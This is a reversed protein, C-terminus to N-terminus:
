YNTFDPNQHFLSKTLQDNSMNIVQFMEKLCVSINDKPFKAQKGWFRIHQASPLQFYFLSLLQHSSSGSTFIPGVHGMKWEPRCVCGGACVPAEPQSLRSGPVASDCFWNRRIGCEGPLSRIMFSCGWYNEKLSLTQLGLTLFVQDGQHIYIQIYM